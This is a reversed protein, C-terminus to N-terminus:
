ELLSWLVETFERVGTSGYSVDTLVSLTQKNHRMHTLLRPTHSSVTPRKSSSYGWHEITVYDKDRAIAVQRALTKCHSLPRMSAM